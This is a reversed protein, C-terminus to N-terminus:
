DTTQGRTQAEITNRAPANRQGPWDRDLPDEIEVAVKVGDVLVLCRARSTENSGARRDDVVIALRYPLHEDKVVEPPVHNAAHQPHAVQSRHADRDV